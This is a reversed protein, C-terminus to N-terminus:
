AKSIVLSKRGLWLALGQALLIVSWFMWSVPVVPSALAAAALAAPIGRTWARWARRLRPYPRGREAQRELWITFGSAAVFTLAAGLLVYVIRVPLGGFFGFHM